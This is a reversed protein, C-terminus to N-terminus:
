GALLHRLLPGLSAPDFPKAVHDDFGADLARRRDGAGGRGTVALLRASRCEPASRIARALEYGDLRGPLGIDCVVVDPPETRALALGADADHVIRVRFGELVLLDRLGSASDRDDEVVLVLPGGAGDGPRQEATPEGGPADA